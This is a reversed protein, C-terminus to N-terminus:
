PLIVVRQVNRQTQYTAANYAPMEMLQELDANLFLYRAGATDTSFSLNDFAVAVQKVGLGLFGGVDVVVADVSGDTLKVLESITGVMEDNVGYVAIGRLEDASLSTEDVDVLNARHLMPAPAAANPQDTTLAPDVPAANPDGDVLQAAEEEPTMAPQGTAAVSDAWIFAPAAKLDEATTGLVWRRSADPREAWDLQAFDVAVDKQGLGLFGGVSIVVASVGIGSTVVMNTITGIEEADDAVSSFVKQNILQTVLVDGEHVSYGQSLLTPPTLGSKELESIPPTTQALSPAALMVALASYCLLRSLM